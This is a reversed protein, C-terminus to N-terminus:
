LKIESVVPYHDSYDVRDIRCSSVCCGDPCLIYDLRLLPWLLSFTAGFGRGAEVFVDKRGKKLQQYTYSMPNDNFDGCVFADLHCRKINSLVKDVQVPRRTIARNMKHGADVVVDTNKKSLGRMIGSPSIAYSEFHCNYVRFVKDAVRYDTFIALNATSDFVIKEKDGDKFASFRSLTVNGLYGREGNDRYARLEVNYGPIKKNLYAQIDKKGAKKDGAMYFEQLCIIDADQRRIFSFVSDACEARRDKGWYKFQGVNWTVIRVTNGAECEEANGTLRLYRGMFLFAPLLALMPIAFSRSRRKLAWILLFANVLSLPVFLLGIVSFLWFRAPNVLMSVYSLLLLGAAILMMLRSTLGLFINRSM